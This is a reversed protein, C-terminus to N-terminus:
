AYDVKRRFPLLLMPIGFFLILGLISWANKLVVILDEPMVYLSLLLVLFLWVGLATWHTLPHVRLGLSAIGSISYATVISFTIMQWIIISIFAIRQFPFYPSTIAGITSLFPTPLQRAVSLGFVLQPMVMSILVLLGGAGVGVFAATRVPSSVHPGLAPLVDYGRPAFLMMPWIWPLTGEGFPAPLLYAPEMSPLDGLILLLFAPLVVLGIMGIVRTTLEVGLRLAYLAPLLTLLSAVIRPTSPLETKALLNLWVNLMASAGILYFLARPFRLYYRVREAWPSLGREILETNLYVGLLGLLAALTMWPLTGYGAEKLVVHGLSVPTTCITVVFAVSGVSWASLRPRSM